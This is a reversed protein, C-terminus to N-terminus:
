ANLTTRILDRALNATSEAPVPLDVATFWSADAEPHPGVVGVSGSGVRAVVAAALGNTYTALVTADAGRRLEFYPGDQFYVQRPVGRWTVTVTTDAINRVTAGPSTIYEGSDGPLLGFGPDLGALYGGMCFGLYHGGSHVWDRMDQASSRVDDWAAKLNNGGGPQVYVSASALAQASLQVKEKPGCYVVHFPTPATALLAAVSEGCGQCSAPGRYVLAVHNPAAKPSASTAQGCAAALGLAGLPVVRTLFARRDVRTLVASVKRLTMVRRVAM